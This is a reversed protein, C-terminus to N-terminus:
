LFLYCYLMSIFGLGKLQNKLFTISLHIHYEVTKESIALKEAIERHTLGEIRSLKFVERQREPLQEMLNDIKEKLEDYDTSQFCTFEEAVSAKSLRDRLNENNLNNRLENLLLNRTITFIFSNFSQASRINKRNEWIRVFVEQLIDNIGDDFKLFTHSFRYLRPYYFNYIMEIGKEENRELSKLAQEINFEPM